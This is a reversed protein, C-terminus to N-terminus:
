VEARSLCCSFIRHGASSGQWTLDHSGGFFENSEIQVELRRLYTRELHSNQSTSAKNRVRWRGVVWGKGVKQSTTCQCTSRSAYLTGRGVLTSRRELNLSSLPSTSASPLADPAHALTSSNQPLQGPTLKSSTSLMTRMATARVLAPSQLQELLNFHSVGSPM